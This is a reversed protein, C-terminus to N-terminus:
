TIVVTLLSSVRVRRSHRPQALELMEEVQSAALRQVMVQVGRLHGPLYCAADLRLLRVEVPHVLSGSDPLWPGLLSGGEGGRVVEEAGCAEEGLYPGTDHQDPLMPVEHQEAEDEEHQEAVVLELAPVEHQEEPEPLHHIVEEQEPEPESRTQCAKKRRWLSSSVVLQPKRACGPTAPPPGLSVLQCDWPESKICM